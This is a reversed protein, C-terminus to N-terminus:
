DLSVVLFSNIARQHMFFTFNSDKFLNRKIQYAEVSPMDVCIDLFTKTQVMDPDTHLNLKLLANTFYKRIINPLALLAGNLRHEDIFQFVDRNDIQYLANVIEQSNQASNFFVFSNFAICNGSEAIQNRKEERYSYLTTYESNFDPTFTMM